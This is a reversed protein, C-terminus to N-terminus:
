LACDQPWFWDIREHPTKRRKRDLVVAVEISLSVLRFDRAANPENGLDSDTSVALFHRALLIQAKGKLWPAAHSTEASRTSLLTQTFDEGWRIVEYRRLREQLLQNRRVQEETSMTLAQKLAEAVEEEHFPNVILAEGMEKAAGAMESLILMGTQNPRSAVFEKAVLNMGDRLPTILAVDCSRYLAVIEEFGLARFQYVLPAWHMTGYAGVIRGVTEEIEKKMAQYSDVGTRSPAVQMLFVLKGHWEPNRKLFLDYARLRNLLGKTYDLRDISLIIKQGCYRARV